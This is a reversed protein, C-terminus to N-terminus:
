EKLGVDQSRHQDRLFEEIQTDHHPRDPPGSLSGQHIRTKDEPEDKKLGVLKEVSAMGQSLTESM